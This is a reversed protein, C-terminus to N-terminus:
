GADAVPCHRYHRSVAAGVALPLIHYGGGGKSLGFCCFQPHREFSMLMIMLLMMTTITILMACDGAVNQLYKKINFVNTKTQSEQQQQQQLQPCRRVRAAIFDVACECVYVDLFTLTAATLKGCQLSSLFCSSGKDLSDTLSRESITHSIALCCNRSLAFNIKNLPELQASNTIAKSNNNNFHERQFIIVSLIHYWTLKTIIFQLTQSTLHILLLIM